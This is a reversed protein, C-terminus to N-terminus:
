GFSVSTSVTYPSSSAALDASLAAASSCDWGFRFPMMEGVVTPTAAAALYMEPESYLPLTCTM